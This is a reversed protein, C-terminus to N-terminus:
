TATVYSQLRLSDTYFSISTRECAVSEQNQLQVKNWLALTLLM